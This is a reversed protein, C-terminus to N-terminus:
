STERIRRTGTKSHFVSGARRAFTDSLSKRARRGGEFTDSLSKRARRGVAFTDSLSKRARRGVAFTDSLSKRARRGVWSLTPSHSERSRDFARAASYPFFMRTDMYRQMRCTTDMYNTIPFVPPYTWIAGGDPDRRWMVGGRRTVSWPRARTERCDLRRPGGRCRLSRGFSRQGTAIPTGRADRIPPTGAQAASRLGRPSVSCGRKMVAWSSTHSLSRMSNCRFAYELVRDCRRKSVRTREALM